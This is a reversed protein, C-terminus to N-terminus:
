VCSIHKIVHGKFTGSTDAFFDAEPVARLFSNVLQPVRLFLGRKVTNVRPRPEYFLRRTRISRTPAHLYFSRLLIHSDLRSNFVNRIFLLDHQVRRSALSPLHFHSLLDTYALSPAHGSTTNSLLWILFKHQVRDIRVTHSEAAGAWIVNVLQHKTRCILLSQLMGRSPGLYLQEPAEPFLPWQNVLTVELIWLRIRRHCLCDCRDSAGEKVEESAASRQETLVVPFKRLEADDEEATGRVTTNTEPSRSCWVPSPPHCLYEVGDFHVKEPMLDPRGGCLLSPDRIQDEEGDGHVSLGGEAPVGWRGSGGWSGEYSGVGGQYGSPFWWSASPAVITDSHLLGLRHLPRGHIGLDQIVGEFGQRLQHAGVRPVKQILQIKGLLPFHVTLLHKNALKEVGSATSQDSARRLCRQTLPQPVDPSRNSWDAAPARYGPLSGSRAPPPACRDSPTQCAAGACRRGRCFGVWGVRKNEDPNKTFTGILRHHHHWWKQGQHFSHKKANTKSPTTQHLPKQTPKGSHTIYRRYWREPTYTLAPPSEHPCCKLDLQAWKTYM